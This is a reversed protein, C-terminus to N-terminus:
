EKLIWNNSDDVYCRNSKVSNLQHELMRLNSPHAICWPLIGLRYGYYISIKHDIDLVNFKRNEIGDIHHANLETLRWVLRKYMGFARKYSLMPKIVTKKVQRNKLPAKDWIPTLDIKRRLGM